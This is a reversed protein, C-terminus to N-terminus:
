RSEERLSTIRHTFAEVNSPSEPSLTRLYDISRRRYDEWFGSPKNWASSLADAALSARFEPYHFGMGEDRLLDSNHILPYGGFLADYYLYNQPNEWHHSLVAHIGESVMVVPFVHRSEFSAKGTRMIDLNLVLRRLTEHDRLHYSNFVLMRELCEPAIRQAQECAVIPLFANKVVSINPEFVGVKWGGPRRADMNPKFGFSGSGDPLAELQEMLLLPSWLHPMVMVPRRMLTGLMHSCIGSSKPLVWIEDRLGPEEFTIGSGTSFVIEEGSLSYHHGVQFTVVSAGLAKIHRLWKTPLLSGMEIVVDITYTVEDPRVLPVDRAGIRLKQPAPDISDHILFVKKINPCLSLLTVLFHINQNIGNGWIQSFTKPVISVGVSLNSPDKQRDHM